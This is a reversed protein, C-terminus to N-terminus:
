LLEAMRLILSSPIDGERLVEIKRGVIKAVTSGKATPTQGPWDARLVGAPLWDLEAASQAPKQGAPNASTTTIPRPYATMLRIIFPHSSCRLGVFKTGGHVVEPVEDTAPLVFTVPGPWFAYLIKEIRVDFDAVTRAMDVGSVLLSVAKTEARGKLDFIREVAHPFKIDAGLGWVTETPYALVKGAALADACVKIKNPDLSSM